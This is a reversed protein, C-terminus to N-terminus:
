DCSKFVGDELHGHWGCCHKLISDMVSLTTVDNVSGGTVRWPKTFAGRAVFSIGGWIGCGPCAISFGEIEGKDNVSPQMGGPEGRIMHDEGVEGISEVLHAKVGSRKPDIEVAEGSGM